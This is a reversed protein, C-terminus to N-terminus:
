RHMVLYISIAELLFSYWFYERHPFLRCTSIASLRVVKMDLSYLFEPLGERGTWLQVHIVEGIYLRVKFTAIFLLRFM